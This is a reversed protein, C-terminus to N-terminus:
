VVSKRDESASDSPTPNNVTPKSPHPPPPELAGAVADLAGAAAGLEDELAAGGGGGLTDPEDGAGDGLAFGVESPPPVMSLPGGAPCPMGPLVPVDVPKLPGELLWGVWVDSDPVM